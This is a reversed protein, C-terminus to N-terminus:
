VTHVRKFTLIIQLALEETWYRPEGPDPYEIGHHRLVVHVGPIWWQLNQYSRDVVAFWGIPTGLLLRSKYAAIALLGDDVVVRREPPIGYKVLLEPQFIGKAGPFKSDLDSIWKTAMAVAYEKDLVCSISFESTDEPDFQQLDDSDYLTRHLRSLQIDALVRCTAGSKWLHWTDLAVGYYESDRPYHSAATPHYSSAGWRHRFIHDVISEVIYPHPAHQKYQHYLDIAGNLVTCVEEGESLDYTYTRVTSGSSGVESSLQSLKHSIPMARHEIIDPLDSMTVVLRILPSM